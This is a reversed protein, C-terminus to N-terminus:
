APSAGPRLHALLDGVTVAKVQALSMRRAEAYEPQRDEISWKRVGAANNVHMFVDGDPGRNVPILKGREEDTARRQLIAAAQGAGM